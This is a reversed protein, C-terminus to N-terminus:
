SVPTAEHHLFDTFGAQFGGTEPLYTITFSTPWDIENAFATPQQYPYTITQGPANVVDQLTLLTVSTEAFILNGDFSGYLMTPTHNVNDLTYDFSADLLHLGMEPIASGVDARYAAPVYISEPMEQFLRMQDYSTEFQDCTRGNTSVCQMTHDVDSQPQMYFHFDFHASSFTGNPGRPEGETNWDVEVYQFPLAAGADASVNNYAFRYITQCPGVPMTASQGPGTFDIKPIEVTISAISDASQTQVVPYTGAAKYADMQQTYAEATGDACAYSTTPIPTSQAQTRAAAPIALASFAIMAVFFLSRLSLIRAAPFRRHM